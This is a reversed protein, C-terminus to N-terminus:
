RDKWYKEIKNKHKLNIRIEETDQFGTQIRLTGNAERNVLILNSHTKFAHLQSCLSCNYLPRTLRCRMVNM